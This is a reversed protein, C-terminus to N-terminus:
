ESKLLDMPSVTFHQEECMVWSLYMISIFLDVGVFFCWFSLVCLALFESICKFDVVQQQVLDPWVFVTSVKPRGGM